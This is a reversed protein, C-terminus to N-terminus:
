GKLDALKVVRSNSPTPKKLSYSRVLAFGTTHGATDMWNGVGVDRASVVFTYTGNSDRKADHSNIQVPHHVYDFSEQWWNYLTFSWFDAEPSPFNIVWAEDPSLEFYGWFYDVLPDGGVKFFYNQDRVVLQNKGSSLPIMWDGWKWANGVVFDATQMLANKLFEPDLPAPVAPGGIQEIKFKEPKENQKNLYAQRMLLFNTDKTMPLWNGPQKKSSAIIEVEDNPGVKVESNKLEGTSRITGGQDMLFAKSGISFFHMTGRRGTIRYDRDGRVLANYYVKDPDDGGWKTIEDCSQFFMPFEKDGAELNQILGIRLLRTLYRFGEARDLQTTPLDTRTIAAGAEALRGCFKQWLDTGLTADHSQPDSSVPTKLTGANVGSSQLLAAVSAALGAGLVARRSSDGDSNDDYKARTM